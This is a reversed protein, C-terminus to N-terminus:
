EGKFFAISRRNLEDAEEWQPWHSAYGLEVWEVGPILAKYEYAMKLFVDKNNVCAMVMTPRSISKLEEDTLMNKDWHQPSIGAFVNRMTKSMGEQRYLRLRLALLDTMRDEPRAILQAFVKDMGEFTPEDVSKLREVLAEQMRAKSEETEVERPRGWASLVILRDVLEPYRVTFKTSTWGGLSLGLLNVKKLGMADIFGKIQAVYAEVDHVRDPKASYGHGELDIAFTNFHKTHAGFNAIFNEWSGGLGHVMLVVPADAPGGNVYRTRIGAADAYGQRFEVNDLFSWISRLDPEANSM